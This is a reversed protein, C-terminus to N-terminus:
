RGGERLWGGSFEGESIGVMDRVVQLPGQWHDSGIKGLSNSYITDNLIESKVRFGDISGYVYLNNEGILKKFDEFKLDNFMEQVLNTLCVHIEEQHKEDRCEVVKSKLSRLNGCFKSGYGPYDETCAEEKIYRTELVKIDTISVDALKIIGREYINLHYGVRYLRIKAFDIQQTDFLDTQFKKNTTNIFNILGQKSTSWGQKVNALSVFKRTFLKNEDLEAEFNVTQVTSNGFLTEGPNKDDISSISFNKVRDSLYYNALQKSFSEINIGFMYDKTYNFYSGHVGDKAEVDYYTKGSLSKLKWLLFSFRFSKDLFSAKVDVPTSVTNLVEFSRKNLVNALGLANTYFNPNKTLDSSINVNYSKIGYHGKDLKASIKLIPILNKMQFSMDISKVEGLDDFIQIVTASKKYFHIRMITSISTNVGVGASFLGQNFNLKMDVSPMSRDTMILSEGVDLEKEIVKLLEAVAKNKEVDTTNLNKLEALTFYKKALKNKLHSVFMNRYPEKMSAKLTKVPKLHSFTRVISMGTRVSGSLGYGMGEVGLHAGLDISAGITDAMQVLNNAGLYNGIIIDRSFILHTGVYPSIWTGVGIPTFEGTKVFHDLGDKFQQNFYESRADSVSTDILKLNFASILNDIINSQIISTFYYGMQEMPSEADGYAFRAAYGEYNKEKIKGESVNPDFTLPVVNNLLLKNLFNRRSIIKELILAAVDVPFFAQDVVEKLDARGLKNIKRMMWNVDDISAPFQNNTFHSLILYKNDIKGSVWSFKNVSESLDLLNYPLVLSRITRSHVSQSPIGMASNYFDTESPATVAVDQLIIQLNNNSKVWREPAGSTAEPIEKKLFNDLEDQSQFSVTLNKLYKTEPVEYGLKRLLNKRLLLTHLTKDLHVTYYLGDDGALVNFRLLGSNSLLAGKYEVISTESLSINNQDDTLSKTIQNPWVDNTQPDLTSLDIDKLLSAERSSLVQGQYILDDSPLVLGKTMPIMSDGAFVNISM